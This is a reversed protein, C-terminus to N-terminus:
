EFKLLNLCNLTLVFLLKLVNFFNIAQTNIESKCDPVDAVEHLLHVRDGPCVWVIVRRRVFNGCGRAAEADVMVVMLVM